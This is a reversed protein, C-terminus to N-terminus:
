PSQDVATSGILRVNIVPKQKDRLKVHGCKLSPLIFSQSGDEERVVLIINNEGM